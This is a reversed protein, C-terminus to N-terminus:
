KTTKFPDYKLIPTLPIKEGFQIDYKEIPFMPESGAGDTFTLEGFYIQGNVMYFDVRVYSFPQSLKRALIKFEEINTLKPHEGKSTVAHRSGNKLDPLFDGDITYMDITKMSFRGQFISYWYPEGSFCYFKYDRLEGSDDELYEEILIRNKVNKYQYEKKIKYFDSSLWKRMEKKANEIDFENKDRCILIAQTGNTCKVVFKQPLANFDIEDPSDYVGYTKVVYKEGIAKKVFEKVAYKDVFPSLDEIHGNIKAWQIKEGYYKPSQLNLIKRYGRFYMLYLAPKMPLIKLIARYLTTASLIM